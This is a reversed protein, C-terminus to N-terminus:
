DFYERCQNCFYQGPPPGNPILKFKTTAAAIHITVGVIRVQVSATDESGCRPCPPLNAAEFRHILEKIGPRQKEMEEITKDDMKLM